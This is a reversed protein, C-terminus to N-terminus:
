TAALASGAPIPGTFCAVAAHSRNVRHCILYARIFVAPAPTRLNDAGTLRAPVPIWSRAMRELLDRAKATRWTVPVSCGQRMAQFTGLTKLELVIGLNSETEPSERSRIRALAEAALQSVAGDPDLAMATLISVADEGGIEELPTVTRM